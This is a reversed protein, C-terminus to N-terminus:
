KLCAVIRHRGNSVVCQQYRKDWRLEIMIENGSAIKKKVNDYRAPHLDLIFKPDIEYITLFSACFINYKCPDSLEKTTQWKIESPVQDISNYQLKDFTINALAPPFEAFMFPMSNWIENGNHIDM